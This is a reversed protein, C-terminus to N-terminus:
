LCFRYSIQYATISGWKERGRYGGAYDASIGCLWLGSLENCTGQRSAGDKDRMKRLVPHRQVLGVLTKRDYSCLGRRM